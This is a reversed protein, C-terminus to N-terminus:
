PRELLYHGTAWNVGRLCRFTADEAFVGLLLARLVSGYVLGVAVSRPVPAESVLGRRLAELHSDMAELIQQRGLLREYGLGMVRDRETSEGGVYLGVWEILAFCGSLGKPLEKLRAAMEVEFDALGDLLGPPRLTGQAAQDVLGGPSLVQNRFSFFRLEPTWPDQSADQSALQCSMGGGSLMGACKRAAVAGLEHRVAEWEARAEEEGSLVTFSARSGLCAKLRCAFSELQPPAVAGQDLAHRVGATAGVLVPGEPLQEALLGVLGQMRVEDQLAFALADGRWSSKERSVVPSSAVGPLEADETFCIARTSGSGCDVVTIQAPKSVPVTALTGLFNIASSAKTDHLWDLSKQLTKQLFSPWPPELPATSTAPAARSEGSPAFRRVARGARGLARCRRAERRALVAAAASAVVGTAVHLVIAPAEQGARGAPGSQGSVPTRKTALPRVRSSRTSPEGLVLAPVAFAVSPFSGVKGIEAVGHMALDTQRRASPCEQAL